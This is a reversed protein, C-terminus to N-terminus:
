AQKMLTQIKLTHFFFPQTNRLNENNNNKESATPRHSQILTSTSQPYISLQAMNM